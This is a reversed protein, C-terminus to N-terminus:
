KSRREFLGGAQNSITACHWIADARSSKSFPIATFRNRARNDIVISFLKVHVPHEHIFSVWAGTM